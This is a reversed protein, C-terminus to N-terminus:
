SRGGNRRYLRLLGAGHEDERCLGNAADGSIQLPPEYLGIGVCGTVPHSLARFADIRKGARIGKGRWELGFSRSLDAPPLDRRLAVAREPVSRPTAALYEPNKAEGRDVQGLLKSINALLRRINAPRLSPLVDDLDEGYDAVASNAAAVLQDFQNQFDSM